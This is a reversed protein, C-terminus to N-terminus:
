TVFSTHVIVLAQYFSHASPGESTFGQIHWRHRNAQRNYCPSHLLSAHSLCLNLLKPRNRDDVSLDQSYKLCTFSTPKWPLAQSRRSNSRLGSINSMNSLISCVFPSDVLRTNTVSLSTTLDVLMAVAPCGNVCTCLYAWSLGLLYGHTLYSSQYLLIM